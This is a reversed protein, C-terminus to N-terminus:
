RSPAPAALGGRSTPLMTPSAQEIRKAIEALEQQEADCTAPDDAELTTTDDLDSTRYRHSSIIVSDPFITYDYVTKSTVKEGGDPSPIAEYLVLEDPTALDLKRGKSLNYETIAVSVSKWNAGHVAIRPHGSDLHIAPACGAAFLLGAITALFILSCKM